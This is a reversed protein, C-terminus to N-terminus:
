RTPSAGLQDDTTVTLWPPLDIGSPVAIGKRTVLLIRDFGHRERAAVVLQLARNFQERTPDESWNKIEIGIREGDQEAVYDVTRKIPFPTANFHRRLIDAVSAEFSTTPNIRLMTLLETPSSTAEAAGADLAQRGGRAIANPSAYIVIPVTLNADRM